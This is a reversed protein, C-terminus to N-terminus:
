FVLSYGLQIQRPAQYWGPNKWRENLTGIRAPNYPYFEPRLYTSYDPSGTDSYVNLAGKQDFLNYVRLYLVHNISSSFLQFRRSLFLDINTTSPLRAINYDWGTYASGGTAEARAIEPTYPLGTEYRGILSIIWGSYDFILTGRLHHRQDWDLPVLKKSPEENNIISNYADSPDSYTGEAIGFAYYLRASFLNSYQKELSVTFGRANAYDLNQYTTYAPGWYTKIASEYGVLDRIDRYYLTVDLGVFNGLQQQLGIEYSVTSKPILDANGFQDPTTGSSVKFDPRAYLYRARPIQFFHGYSFHIVGTASIPYAIGIRPSLKTKPDVQVHMLERREAPTYQDFQSEYAELKAQNNLIDDPPQIWDKYKWAKNYPQYIDPDRPDVPKVHNADFYDFRLGINLIINEYELKDQIYVSFVLPKRMYENYDPSSVLPLAPKYAGFEDTSKVVTFNKNFEKFMRLEVGAKVLNQENVQSNIDFKIMWYESKSREQYYDQAFRNFSQTPVSGTIWDPNIYGKSNKPDIVWDLIVGDTNRLQNFLDRNDDPDFPVALLNDDADRFEALYNPTQSPNKYLYEKSESYDYLFKLEYFTKSSLMHSLSMMHSYGWLYRQRGGNPVYMNARSNTSRPRDSKNLFLNYMLKIKPNVQWQLKAMGTITTRPNLAVLKNDGALGEPTYWRRGYEWGDRYLYRGNAFFTVKNNTFPIPGSLAGELNYEPNFNEWLPKETTGKSIIEGTEPDTVDEVNELVTYLNSSTVYDGVYASLRGHYEQTGSKTVVNIIGSNANGYEANFAGTIVQLEQIAYSEVTVDRDTVPVGDVLTAVEDGRGGRIHMEDGTQVVAPQINVMADITQVPLAVIEDADISELSATMDERVLPREAQVVIVEGEIVAEGLVIDVRTTFDISVRVNEQRYEDYGIMSAVVTYSGPIINLITYMGELDTAAGLHTGELFVNVGPIPYGNQADTIVGAIKGTTGAYSIGLLFMFLLLYTIINKMM